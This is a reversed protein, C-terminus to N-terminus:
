RRGRTGREVPAMDPSVNEAWALNIFSTIRDDGALAKTVGKPGLRKLVEQNFKQLSGYPTKCEEECWHQFDRYATECRIYAGAKVVTRLKLYGLLYDEKEHYAEKTNVVSEPVEDGWKTYQFAEKAGAIVDALIAEGDREVIREEWGDIQDEKPIVRGSVDFIMLRDWVAEDDSIRPPFNTDLIITGRDRHQESKEYKADTSRWSGGSISKVLPENLFSRAGTESVTVFHKHKVSAEHHTIGPNPLKDGRYTLLNPPLVGHYDPGLVLTIANIFSTKGTNPEGVVIVFTKKENTGASAYGFVQMAFKSADGFLRKKAEEWDDSKAEPNYKYKTVTTLMDSPDHSQCVHEPDKVDVTGNPCNILYRNPDFDTSRCHLNKYGMLFKLVGAVGACTQLRAIAGEQAPDERVWGDCVKRIYKTIAPKAEDKSWRIGDFAVWYEKDVVYRLLHGFSDNIRCALGRVGVTNRENVEVVFTSEAQRVVQFSERWVAEGLSEAGLHRLIEGKLKEHLDKSTCVEPEEFEIVVNSTSDVRYVSVFSDQISDAAENQAAFTVAFSLRKEADWGNATPLNPPLNQLIM